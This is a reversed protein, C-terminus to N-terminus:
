ARSRSHFSQGIMRSGSGTAAPWGPPGPEGSPFERQVGRPGPDTAGFGGGPTTEAQDQPPVALRDPVELIAELALGVDSEILGADGLGVPGGAQQGGQTGVGDEGGVQGAGGGGGGRQGAEGAQRDGWVLVQALAMAPLPLAQVALLDALAVRGLEM